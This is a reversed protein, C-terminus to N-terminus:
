SHQLWPLTVPSSAWSTSSPSYAVWSSTPAIPYRERTKEIVVKQLTYSLFLFVSSMPLPSTEHKLVLRCCAGRRRTGIPLLCQRPGTRCAVALICWFEKSFITSYLVDNLYREFWVKFYWLYILLYVMYCTWRISSLSSISSCSPNISFWAFLLSTGMGGGGGGWGMSCSHDSASRNGVRRQYYLINDLIVRKRHSIFRVKM